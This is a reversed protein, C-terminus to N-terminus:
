LLALLWRSKEELRFADEDVASRVGNSVCTAFEQPPLATLKLWCTCCIMLERGCPKLLKLSKKSRPITSKRCNISSKACSRKFPRSAITM